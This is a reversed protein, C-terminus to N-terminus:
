AVISFTGFDAHSDRPCTGSGGFFTTIAVHQIRIDHTRRWLLDDRTVAEGNVSITLIGNRVPLGDDDIANMKVRIIIDNWAGGCKLQLHAKGFIETKDFKQQSDSPSYVHAVVRGGELWKLGPAKGPGVCLGPLEGGKGWLFDPSFKVKYHLMADTAPFCRPQAKFNCGGVQGSSSVRGSGRPYSVRLVDGRVTCGWIRWAFGYWPPTTRGIVLQSFPLLVRPKGILHKVPEKRPTARAPTMLVSAYTKKRTAGGFESM